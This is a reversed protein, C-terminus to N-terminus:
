ATEREEYYKGISTLYLNRCGINVPKRNECAEYLEAYVDHINEDGETEYTLITGTIDNHAYEYGEIRCHILYKRNM